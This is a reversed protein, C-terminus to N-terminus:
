NQEVSDLLQSTNNYLIRIHQQNWPIPLPFATQISYTSVSDPNCATLRTTQDHWKNDTGVAKYETM